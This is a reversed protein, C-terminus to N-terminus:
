RGQRARRQEEQRDELWKPIVIDDNPSGDPEPTLELTEILPIEIDQNEILATLTMPSLKKLNPIALPGRWTALVKAIAVSDPSEFATVGPLRGAFHKSAVVRRAMEETLPMEDGGIKDFEFRLM